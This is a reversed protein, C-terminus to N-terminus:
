ATSRAGALAERGKVTLMDDPINQLSTVYQATCQCFPEEAPQTIDDLYGAAGKKILGDDLAWSGRITYLRGDREKHDVRYDYGKQRWNSHWIAAIAGQGIAVTHTVASSLKAGQDIAVRRAEFKLRAPGKAIDTAVSRLNTESSGGPPVSTVWGSFRQLTKETVSRKNLKILDVGAFIRRDLEARLAPAVRDLTYRSVGPVLQAIGREIERKHVSTLSLALTKRIEEDSPMEIDLATHLRMLWEQLEFESTYGRAAFEKIAQMLLTRFARETPM